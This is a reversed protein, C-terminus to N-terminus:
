IYITAVLFRLSESFWISIEPNEALKAEPWDCRLIRKLSKRSCVTQFHM